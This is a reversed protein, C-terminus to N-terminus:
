KLILEYAPAPVDLNLQATATSGDPRTLRLAVQGSEPTRLVFGGDQDTEAATSPEDTTSVVIHELPAGAADRVVGHILTRRESIANDRDRDRYVLSRGLVFPHEFHMQLDVPLTVVFCFAARPEASLASWVDLLKIGSDAQAVRTVIPADLVMDTQFLSADLEPTRM